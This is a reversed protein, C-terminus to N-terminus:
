RLRLGYECKPTCPQSPSESDHWSRRHTSCYPEIDEITHDLGVNRDAVKRLFYDRVGKMGFHFCPHSKSRNGRRDIAWGLAAAVDEAGADIDKRVGPSILMSIVVCRYWVPNPNPANFDIHQLRDQASRARDEFAFSTM